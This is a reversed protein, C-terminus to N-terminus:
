RAATYALQAIAAGAACACAALAIWPLEGGWTVIAAMLMALLLTAAGIPLLMPAIPPAWPMLSAKAIHLEVPFLVLNVAVLAVLLAPVGFPASLAIAGLVAAALALDLALRRGGRGLAVMASSYTALPARLMQIAALAYLIPVSPLWERGLLLPIWLPAAIALLALGPWALATALRMSYRMQGALAEPQDRLASLMPWAHNHVVNPVAEAYAEIYRRALAYYGLNSAGLLAGVLLEDARNRLAGLVRSGAIPLGVAVAERGATMGPRGLSTRVSWLGALLVVLYTVIMRAFLSAIGHGQLALLIATVSGALEGAIGGLALLRFRRERRVLAMAIEGPIALLAAPALALVALVIARDTGFAALLGAAALMALAAALAGLGGWIMSGSFKARDMAPATVLGAPIGLGAAAIVILMWASALAFVGFDAPALLRALITLVALRIGQTSWNLMAIWGIGHAQPPLRLRLRAIM